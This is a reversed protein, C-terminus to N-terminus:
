EIRGSGGGDVSLLTALPPLQACQSNCVTSYQQVIALAVISSSHTISPPWPQAFTTAPHRVTPYFLCYAIIVQIITRIGVATVRSSVVVYLGRSAIPSMRVM